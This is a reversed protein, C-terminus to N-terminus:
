FVQMHTCAFFHPKTPHAVNKFERSGDVIKAGHGGSDWPSFPGNAVVTIVRMVDNYECEAAATKAVKWLRVHRFSCEMPACTFILDVKLFLRGRVM